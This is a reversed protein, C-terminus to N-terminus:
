PSSCNKKTLKAGARSKSSIVGAGLSAIKSFAVKDLDIIRDKGHPGYDNIEVIVTKGNAVNTV